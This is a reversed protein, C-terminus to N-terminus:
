LICIGDQGIRLICFKIHGARFEDFYRRPGFISNENNKWLILFISYNTCNHCLKKNLKAVLGKEQDSLLKGYSAREVTTVYGTVDFPNMNAQKLLRVTERVTGEETQAATFCLIKAASSTPALGDDKVRMVQVLLNFVEGHTLPKDKKTM